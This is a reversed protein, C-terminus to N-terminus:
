GVRSPAPSPSPPRRSPLPRPGRLLHGAGSHMLRRRGPVAHPASQSHSVDRGGAGGSSTYGEVSAPGQDPPSPVRGRCWGRDKVALIGLEPLPLGFGRGPCPPVGTRSWLGEIDGTEGTWPSWSIFPETATESPQATGAPGQLRPGAIVTEPLAPWDEGTSPARAPLSGSGEPPFELTTTPRRQAQLSIRTHAHM